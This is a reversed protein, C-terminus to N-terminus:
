EPCSFRKPIWKHTSRKPGESPGYTVCLHAESLFQAFWANVNCVTRLFLSCWRPCLEPRGVEPASWGCMSFGSFGSPSPNPLICKKHGRMGDTAAKDSMQRRMKHVITTSTTTVASRQSKLRQHAPGSWPRPGDATPLVLAVVLFHNTSTFVVGVVEM